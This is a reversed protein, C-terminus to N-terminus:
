NRPCALPEVTDEIIPSPQSISLQTISL